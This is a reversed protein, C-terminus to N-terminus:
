DKILFYSVLIALMYSIMEDNTYLFNSCIKFLIISTIIVKLIFISKKKKLISMLETGLDEKSDM